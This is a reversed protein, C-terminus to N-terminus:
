DGTVCKDALNSRTSLSVPLLERRRTLAYRITYKNSQLTNKHPIRLMSRPQIRQFHINHIRTQQDTHKTQFIFPVSAKQSRQSPHKEDNRVNFSCILSHGM